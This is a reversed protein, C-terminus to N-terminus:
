RGFVVPPDPYKRGSVGTVVPSPMREDRDGSVRERQERDRPKRERDGRSWERDRDSSPPDIERFLRGGGTSRTAMPRERDRERERSSDWDSPRRRDIDAHSSTRRHHDPHALYPDNPHHHLHPVASSVSGRGGLVRSSRPSLDDDGDEEDSYDRERSRRGLPPPGKPARHHDREGRSHHDHDAALHRRERERERDRDRDRDALERRRERDKEKSREREREPRRIDRDRDRERDRDRRMQRRRHEADLDSRASDETEEEASWARHLRSGGPGAPVPYERVRPPLPRGDDKPTRSGSRQRESAATHGGPFFSTIKDKIDHFSKRKSADDGPHVATIIPTGVPVVLPTTPGHSHIHAPPVMGSVVRAGSSESGFTRRVSSPPPDDPHRPGTRRRPPPDVPEHEDITSTSSSTSYHRDRPQSHRRASPGRDATVHPVHITHVERFASPNDSASRRRHTPEDSSSGHHRAYRGRSDRDREHDHDRDRKDPIHVFAVNAPRSNFYDRPSPPARVHSFAPVKRDPFTARPEERPTAEERLKVACGQHWKDCEMDTETPLASAPLDAPFPTGNEPHKLAWNRVAYQLVPVHLQPELLIQISQWRAFGKETLAPILPAAYDDEGPLCYHQCGQVQYIYSISQPPMEVFLSDFDHGATKYFTALKAPTLFKVKKDGIENIQWSKTLRTTAVIIRRLACGGHEDTRIHAIRVIHLAVARLLADLVSTPQPIPKHDDFLYGYFAKADPTDKADKDDTATAAAAQVVM